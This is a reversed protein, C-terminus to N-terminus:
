CCGSNPTCSANKNFESLPKRIKESPIGCKDKALCDTQTNLLLFQNNIFGLNYKYITTYQHEVEIEVNELNLKQEALNIIRLLKEPKLRHEFDEAEWLQFSIIKENRIVGGCDIFKKHIVGIETIHFHKPVLEGNPLIFELKEVEYLKTKFDELNM